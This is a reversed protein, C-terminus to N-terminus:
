IICWAFSVFKIPFIVEAELPVMRQLLEVTDMQLTQIDLANVARVLESVPLNPLKRKCIAMNKLRTHEMLTDLQPKPPPAASGKRGDTENNNNNVGKNNAIPTPNLKFEEEFAAFDLDKMLKVDDM